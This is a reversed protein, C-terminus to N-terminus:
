GVSDYPAVLMQLLQFDPPLKVHTSSKDAYWNVYSLIFVFM